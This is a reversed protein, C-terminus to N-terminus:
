GCKWFQFCKMKESLWYYKAVSVTLSLTIFEVLKIIMLVVLLKINKNHLYEDGDVVLYYETDEFDYELEKAGM